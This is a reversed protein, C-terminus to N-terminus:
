LNLISSSILALITYFLGQIIAIRGIWYYVIYYIYLSMGFLKDAFMSTQSSLFLLVLNVTAIMRYRYILERRNEVQIGICVSNATIYVLFFIAQFCTISTWYRRQIVLLYVILKSLYCVLFNYIKPQICYLM